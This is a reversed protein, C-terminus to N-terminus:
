LRGSTTNLFPLRRSSGAMHWEGLEIFNAPPPHCGGRLEAWSPRGIFGQQDLVTTVARLEGLCGGVERPGDLSEVITHAVDPLRQRIM